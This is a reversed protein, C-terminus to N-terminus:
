DIVMKRHNGDGVGIVQARGGKVRIFLWAEEKTTKKADYSVTVAIASTGPKRLVDWIKETAPDARDKQRGALKKEVIKLYEEIPMSKGLVFKAEETKEASQFFQIVQAHTEVPAVGFPMIFPVGITRELGKADKKTFAALFQEAVRRALARPNTTNLDVDAKSLDVKAEHETWWRTWAQRARKRDSGLADAPAIQGAARYLSEEAKQGLGDETEELLAILIPIAAKDRSALTGRAAQLRVRPDRDGLRACGAKKQEADGYRALVLAAAARKLPEADDLLAQM